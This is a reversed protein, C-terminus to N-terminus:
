ADVRNASKNTALKAIEYLEVLDRFPTVWLHESPARWLEKLGVKADDGLLRLLDGPLEEFMMNASRRGLSLGASMKRLKNRAGDQLASSARLLGELRDLQPPNPTGMEGEPTVDDLVRMPRQILACVESGYSVLETKRRHNSIEPTWSGTEIHWDVVSAPAGSADLRRFLRKASTALDESLEVLRHIPLNPSAIAMGIGLTLPAGDAPKALAACLATVFPMAGKARCIVLLDDGGLMLLQFPRIAQGAQATDSGFAVKLAQTVAKRLNVRNRHHFNEFTAERLIFSDRDTVPIAEAEAKARNGVNNGDAHIVAVYDNGCMKLIDKATEGKHAGNGQAMWRDILSIIDGADKKRWREYAKRRALVSASVPEKVDDPTTWEATARDTGTASCLAFYPSALLTVERDEPHLEAEQVVAAQGKDDVSILRLDYHLGPVSTRLLDDAAALFAKANSLEVPTAAKKAMCVRLHGGDRSLIGREYLAAPDDLDISEIKEIPDDQVAGNIVGPRTEIPVAFHKGALDVLRRRITEGLLVNAGVMDRLRPSAFVFKQIGRFEIEAILLAHPKRYLQKCLVPRLDNSKGSFHDDAIM